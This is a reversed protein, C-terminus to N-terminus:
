AAKRSYDPAMAGRVASDLASASLSAMPVHEAGLRVALDAALGLRVPGTECDVVISAVGTAALLGAARRADGLASASGTARGDTVLVLLARRRPDRLRERLVVTHCLLLGSALPTRGGTPVSGLRAAAAEVSGTPPLVLSASSGRFTILGVKDRRQYADLLLSLVAGKVASMRSRAAMSGSADVAFLVLNGERDRRVATRLDAPLFTPSSAMGADAEFARRSAAARLTAPLHIVQGFVEGSAPRQAGVTRGRGRSRGASRRGPVGDGVGPVTFLRTRYAAGAAVAAQESPARGGANEGTDLAGDASAPVPREARDGAPETASRPATETGAGAAPAQPAQEGRVGGGGPGGDGPGDGEPGGDGPDPNPDAGPEPDACAQELQDEDLGPADFPNRRRRHPLALRAADRVEEATVEPKERWAALAVAARATVLDARMGDVEFAACVRAIRELEADPLRVSRVLARAAAIRRGVRADAEDWRACFEAPDAEYALRRRVVEARQKPERSAAVDVTLGFRDLLQPRLEGEEPNMTGVLLFRAAHRV